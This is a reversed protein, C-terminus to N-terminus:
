PSRESEDTKPVPNTPDGQLALALLGSLLLLVGIAIALSRNGAASDGWFATSLFASGLLVCPVMVVGSAIRNRAM